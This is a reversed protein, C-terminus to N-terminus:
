KSPGKTTATCAPLKCSRSSHKASQSDQRLLDSIIIRPASSRRESSPQAAGPPAYRRQRLFGTMWQVSDLIGGFPYLHFIVSGFQRAEISDVLRNAFREPRARHLLNAPSLGYQCLAATSTAVGFQRAFRILKGVETPGPIGIRVPVGIDFGRLKTLWDVIADADFGFQTTIEVSCGADQLFTLKWRLAEWLRDNEIKPHGEPYGVIGVQRIAHRDLVGSKLLSLSDAYPGAPVAPDGGVFMFRQPQAAQILGGILDDLDDCSRLRRSSIIPVPEFGSDRIIRAAGIRQQHTENGLFAINIPTGAPIESKASQIQAIDKGTIELTFLSCTSTRRSQADICLDHM